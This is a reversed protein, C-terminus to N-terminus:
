ADHAFVVRRLYLMAPRQDLLLRIRILLSCPTVSATRIPRPEAIIRGNVVVVVVVVVVHETATLLLPGPM